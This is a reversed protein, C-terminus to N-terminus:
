DAGYHDYKHSKWSNFYFSWWCLYSTHNPLIRDVILLGFNWLLLVALIFTPKELIDKAARKGNVCRCCRFLLLLFLLRLRFLHFGRQKKFSFVANLYIKNPHFTVISNKSFEDLPTGCIGNLLFVSNINLLQQLLKWMNFNMLYNDCAWTEDEIVGSCSGSNAASKPVLLVANWTMVRSELGGERVLVLLRSTLFIKCNRM